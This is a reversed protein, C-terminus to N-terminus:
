DVKVLRSVAKSFAAWDRKQDDLRRRGAATLAYVRVRRGTEGKAWRATVLGREELRHLGPYLSGEEVGLVDGTETEIYRAIAYGHKHGGGLAQLLLLELTGRLLQDATNGRTMPM